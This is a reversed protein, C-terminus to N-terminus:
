FALNSTLTMHLYDNEEDEERRKVGEEMGKKRIGRKKMGRRM